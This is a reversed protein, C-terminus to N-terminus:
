RASEMGECSKTMLKFREFGIERKLPRGEIYEEIEDIIAHTMIAKAASAAMHPMLIVNDLTRLESDAPLPEREFVDLVANFRKTKLEVILAAEDVVAGRATNIFLADNKILRLLNKDIMHYTEETLSTHVSIIDAWKIVNELSDTEVNNHKNIKKLDVYPDYLKIKANFPELLKLLNRGVSGLGIFGIKKNYLTDAEKINREWGGGSKMQYAHTPIQRLSALMYTLTGEAVYEAMVENASIVKIGRKYVEDSVIDAVSGAAHAILKLEPANDLVNKTFKPCGWHSICIEAGLLNNILEEEAFPRGTENIIVEGLKKLRNLADKTFYLKRPRGEKLVEELTILIKM